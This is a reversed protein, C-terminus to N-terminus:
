GMKYCFTFKLHSVRDCVTQLVMKRLSGVGGCLFSLPNSNVKVEKAKVSSSKSPSSLM